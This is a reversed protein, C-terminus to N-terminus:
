KLEMLFTADGVSRDVNSVSVPLATSFSVLLVFGAVVKIDTLMVPSTLTAPVHRIRCRARERGRRKLEVVDGVLARNDQREIWECMTM